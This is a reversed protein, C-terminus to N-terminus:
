FDEKIEFSMKENKTAHMFSLRTCCLCLDRGGEGYKADGLLPYGRESFQVRIQHSRGTHLIIKVRSFGDYENTVRYELEAPKGEKQSVVYVRNEKSDKKLYDFLVGSPRPKGKVLATYEKFVLKSAFQMSLRAAAKSTRAFVMIGMTPRDLRHVLGLYVNGPKNYKVKIYEKLLTLMDTDGTIDEQSPVNHPKVAVIIHNDEYLIEPTM